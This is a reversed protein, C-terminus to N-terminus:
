TGNKNQPRLFSLLVNDRYKSVSFKRLRGTIKEIHLQAVIVQVETNGRQATFCRMIYNIEVSLLKLYKVVPSTYFKEQSNHPFNRIPHVEDMIVSHDM